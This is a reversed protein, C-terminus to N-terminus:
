HCTQRCMQHGHSRATHRRATDITMNRLSLM